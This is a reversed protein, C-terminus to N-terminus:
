NAWAFLYVVYERWIYIFVMYECILILTCAIVTCGETQQLNVPILQYDFLFDKTFVEKINEKPM